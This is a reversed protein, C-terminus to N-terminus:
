RSFARGTPAARAFSPLAPRLCHQISFASHDESGLFKATATRLIPVSLEGARPIDGTRKGRIKVDLHHKGCIRLLEDEIVPDLGECVLVEELGQLFDLLLPESLPYVGLKLLKCGQPDVERLYQWSVGGAGIGLKGAVELRNGPYAAHEMSLKDMTDEIQLHNAYSGKPFIVWRGDEKTFAPEDAEQATVDSVEVSAYSHCVRTTPRFLVPRGIRESLAFADAMMAYAEEPTSPDFCALKAFRAYHRTDQETQSSIPGPDDAVVVVMGAKVGVYNLCMLPDSAVNLGVQKMTVMARAGAIAAEAAVELATKENVSWEAYVGVPRERAITELIESSPTGPYGTAVKVGAALTGLAIAENGMCLRKAM